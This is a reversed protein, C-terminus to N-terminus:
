IIFDTLLTQRMRITEEWDVIDMEWGLGTAKQRMLPGNVPVNMVVSQKFWVFVAENVSGYKASGAHKWKTHEWNPMGLQTGLQSCVHIYWGETM